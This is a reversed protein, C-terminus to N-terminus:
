DIYEKIFRSHVTGKQTNIQLLYSGSTLGLVDLEITNGEITKIM